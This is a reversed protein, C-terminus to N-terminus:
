CNIIDILVRMQEKTRPAGNDFIVREGDLVRLQDYDYFEYIYNKFVFYGDKPTLGLERLDRGSLMGLQYLREEFDLCSSYIMLNDQRWFQQEDSTYSETANAKFKSVDGYGNNELYEDIEDGGETIKFYNSLDLLEAINETEM